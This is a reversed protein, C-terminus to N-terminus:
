LINNEINASINYKNIISFFGNPVSKIANIVYIISLHQMSEYDAFVSDTITHFKIIDNKFM